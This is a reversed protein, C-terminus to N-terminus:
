KEGRLKLKGKLLMFRLALRKPNSKGYVSLLLWNLYKNQKEDRACLCTLLFSRRENTKHEHKSWASISRFLDVISIRNEWFDAM